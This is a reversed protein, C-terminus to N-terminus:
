LREMRYIVSGDPVQWKRTEKYKEGPARYNIFDQKISENVKPIILYTTSANEKLRDEDLWKFLYDYEHSYISPSYAYYSYDSNSDNVITNVIYKQALILFPTIM